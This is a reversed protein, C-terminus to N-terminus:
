QGEEEERIFNRFASRVAALNAATEHLQSASLGPDISSLAEEEATLIDAVRKQGGATLSVLHSRKHAPNTQLEVLEDELLGNVIVQIHQRSVPRRGAIQPVTQPGERHLSLLVSRRPASGVGEEHILEAVRKLHHFLVRVEEIVERLAPISPEREPM